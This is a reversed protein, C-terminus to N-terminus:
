ATLEATHQPEAVRDIHTPASIKTEPLEQKVPLEDAHVPTPSHAPANAHTKKAHKNEAIAAAKKADVGMVAGFIRTSVWLSVSTILTYVADLSIYSFVRSPIRDGINKGNVDAARTIEKASLKTANEIQELAHPNNKSFFSDIKRGAVTSFEDLSTGLKKGLISDKGGIAFFVAFTAAFAVVRSSFVSLWTQKPLEDLEKHAAQIKPDNYFQDETYLMYDLKKVAKSKRDELWKVPLVSAITGGIFLTVINMATDGFGYKKTTETVLRESINKKFFSAPGKTDHLLWTMLVSTATVIFYGFGVYSIANFAAEGRTKNQFGLHIIDKRNLKHEASDDQKPKETINTTM